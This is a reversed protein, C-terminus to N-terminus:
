AALNRLAEGEPRMGMWGDKRKAGVSEYFKLGKENSKLV